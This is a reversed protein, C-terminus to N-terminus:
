TGVNKDEFNGEFLWSWCDVQFESQDSSLSIDTKSEQAREKNDEFSLFCNCTISLIGTGQHELSLFFLM